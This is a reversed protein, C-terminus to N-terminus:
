KHMDATEIEMKFNYPTKQSLKQLIQIYQQKLENDKEDIAYKILKSTLAPYDEILDERGMFYTAPFSPILDVM